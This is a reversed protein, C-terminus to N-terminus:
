TGAQEDDSGRVPPQQVHQAQRQQSQPRPAGGEDNWSAIAAQDQVAESRIKEAENMLGVFQPQEGGVAVPHVTKDQNDAMWQTNAALTLFSNQLEKFERKEEASAATEILGAYKAATARYQASTFM